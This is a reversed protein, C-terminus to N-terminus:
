YPVDPYWWKDTKVLAIDIADKPLPEDIEGTAQQHASEPCASENWEYRLYEAFATRVSADAVKNDSGPPSFSQVALILPFKDKGQTGAEVDPWVERVADCLARRGEIKQEPTLQVLTWPQPSNDSSTSATTAAPAPPNVYDSLAVFMFIGVVATFWRFWWMTALPRGTLPDILKERVLGKAFKSRFRPVFSAVFAAASTLAILGVFAGGAAHGMWDAVVLLVVLLVLTLCGSSTGLKAILKDHEAKLRVRAGPEVTESPSLASAPRSAAGSVEVVGRAADAALLERIASEPETIRWNNPHRAIPGPMGCGPCRKATDALIHGCSSCKFLPM